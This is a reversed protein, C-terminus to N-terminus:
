DAKIKNKLKVQAVQALDEAWELADKVLFGIEDKEGDATFRVIIFQTTKAERGLFKSQLSVGKIQKHKIIWAKSPVSRTVRLDSETIAVFGIGAMSRDPGLSKLGTFQGGAPGRIFEVGDNEWQTVTEAKHRNWSHTLRARILWVVGFLALVVVGSIIVFLFPDM